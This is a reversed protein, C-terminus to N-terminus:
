CGVAVTDQFQVTDAGSSEVRRSSGHDLQTYMRCCTELEQAKESQFLLYTQTRRWPDGDVPKRVISLISFHTVSAVHPASGNSYSPPKRLRAYSGFAVKGLERGVLPVAFHVVISAVEEAVLGVEAVAAKLM